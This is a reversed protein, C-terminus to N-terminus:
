IIYKNFFDGRYRRLADRLLAQNSEALDAFLGKRKRRITAM